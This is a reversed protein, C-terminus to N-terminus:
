LGRLFSYDRAASTCALLIVLTAVAFVISDLSIGGPSFNLLIGVLSSVALSLGISLAVTEAGDLQRRPGFLVRVLGLGPAFGLFVTGDIWRLYSWPVSSPLRYVSLFTISTIGLLFWFVWSRPLDVLFSFFSKFKPGRRRLDIQGRDRMQRVIEFVEEDSLRSGESNRIELLDRICKAKGASISEM